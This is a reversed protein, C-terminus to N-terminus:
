KNVIKPTANPAATLFGIARQATYSGMVVFTNHAFLLNQIGNDELLTKINRVFYRYDLIFVEEYHAALYPVFANGYSDKIVAIKKGHQETLIHKLLTTKGSGLFGTLITVPILAM